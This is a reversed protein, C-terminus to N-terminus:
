RATERRLCSSDRAGPSWIADAGAPQNRSLKARRAGERSELTTKYGHSGSLTRMQWGLPLRGQAEAEFGANVLAPVPGEARSTSACMVVMAIPLIIRM